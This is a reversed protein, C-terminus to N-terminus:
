HRAFRMGSVKSEGCPGADQSYIWLYTLTEMSLAHIIGPSSTRYECPESNKEAREKERLKEKRTLEENMEKGPGGDEDVLFGGKTNVMKSLDYEFYNSLRTDKKLPKSPDDEEGNRRNREYARKNPATPSASSVPVVELPRKNNSNPNSLSEAALRERLERQRAKALEYSYM